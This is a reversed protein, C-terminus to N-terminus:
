AARRCRAPARSRASFNRRISECGTGARGVHEGAARQLVLDPADAEGGSLGNEHDGVVDVLRHMKGAGSRASSWRVTLLAREGFDAALGPSASPGGGGDHADYGSRWARRRYRRSGASGATM